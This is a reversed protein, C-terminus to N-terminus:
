KPCSRGAACLVLVLTPNSLSCSSPCHLMDRAHSRHRATRLAASDASWKLGSPFGAGGRGRLGSAKIENIIWDRGMVMFDKTRHWDGRKVAGDICCDREGYINTFIRDQDKLGGYVRTHTQPQAPVSVGATTPVSPASASSPAAPKPPTSSSATNSSPTPTSTSTTAANKSDPATQATGSGQGISVGGKSAPTQNTTFSTVSARLSSTPRAACTSPAASFLARQLLQRHSAASVSRLM